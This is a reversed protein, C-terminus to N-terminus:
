SERHFLKKLWAVFKPWCNLKEPEIPDIPDIPPYTTDLDVSSWWEWADEFDQYSMKVYGSEAFGVGWSNRIWLCNLEDDYGVVCMDHGGLFEDETNKHWMRDTYNYVPVAIICPGKIFLAQKLENLTYIRAYNNIRFLEAQKIAEESPEKKTGYPYLTELCVGKNQLIKMLDRNTMGETDKNERSNYIFQPSLYENLEVDKIEQWEKMAAASMAACSGQSGQDRIPLMIDRYDVKIPIEISKYINSFVFDREDYPSKTVNLKYKKLNKM